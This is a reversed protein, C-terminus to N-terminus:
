ISKELLHGAISKVSWTRGHGVIVLRRRRAARRREMEDEVWGRAARRREMEDEVRGRAARRREMEDEVRGEGWVGDCPFVFGGGAM